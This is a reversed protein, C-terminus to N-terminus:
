SKGQGAFAAERSDPRQSPEPLNKLRTFVERANGEFVAHRDVDQMWGFQEIVPKLDDFTRGTSSDFFSGFGPKETGFMCRDVGVVRLLYDLSESSYLVTDFYLKRLATDFADRDGGMRVTSARWRGIQYPVSGGGHGIIIKLDPFREFVDSNVLSLIAISEETIFHAGYVERENQCGAPHVLAPLDLECLKEYLPFWAESGMVPPRGLGEDPDPNILCGVFGLEACRDLERLSSDWDFDVNQPLGAVGAFAGPAQACAQAIADNNAQVWMEVIRRPSEDHMLAYPRPSILQIDTGVERLLAVHADTEGQMRAEDIKPIGRVQFGRSALLTSRFSYLEPPASLHGHIDIVM